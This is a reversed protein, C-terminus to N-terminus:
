LEGALEGALDVAVDAEVGPRAREVRGVRRVIAVDRDAHDYRARDLRHDRGDRHTALVARRDERAAAARAEGTLGAVLADHDIARTVEAPDLDIAVLADRADLGAHDHLLQA